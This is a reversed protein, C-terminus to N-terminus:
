VMWHSLNFAPTPAPFEILGREPYRETEITGRFVRVTFSIREKESWGLAVGPLAVSVIDGVAVEPVLDPTLAFSVEDTSTEAAAMWIQGDRYIRVRLPRPEHFWFQVQDPLGAQCDLRLFLQNAGFGFWIAQIMRDSQYMASGQHRVDFCGAGLWEYCSNVKGNLKPEIRGTPLTYRIPSGRTRIPIELHQPPDCGLIRYVNQLHTRFLEDFLFDCDTQFDPGYWWFWDSGEAAYIERWAAQVTEEPYWSTELQGVLFRRTAAIAEWARNEEPDGIWIDFDGRIWSGTHLTTLRARPSCADVYNGLCELRLKGSRTLKGYTQELFAEGGDSFSEWANEGDLALLVMGREPDTVDALHELHHLLHDSAEGASTRSAQFGIFDSLPRERFLGTVGQGDWTVEWPQFLELHDVPSGARSPDAALGRLLIDEDTCFYDIGVERFLPVLEPAVSGESPWLGRAPRGFVKTHQEQALRLQARADEPASFREPLTAWPMCRQAFSTDYVLPLIPHYFPTTTIEIQGAEAAERYLPLILRVIELHVDLVRNKEEETFDRGKRRLEALEPYRRLASFGCWALNYWTQLDRYDQETFHGISEKLSSLDYNRGRLDLLERYRPFPHILNDWNIKFFNELIRSKEFDTLQSAPTRSWTEWLDSIRGEGLDLLQEVLVPTFNFSVRAEPFRRVLDIMDLYGKVAHLRVWPMMATKTLPNVYSPQHMHWLFLVRLM